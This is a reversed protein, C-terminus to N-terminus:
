VEPYIVALKDWDIGASARIREPLLSLYYYTYSIESHGLYASLYPMQSSVDRGEDVWRMITRTVHNHRLDYPRPLQGDSFLATDRCCIHFQSTMWHTPCKRGDSREFFFTRSGHLDDYRRCLALLDASMVIRRDKSKKSQRIFVVGSDLNVDTRLLALPEGPRMGCCYMMRFLVPVIYEKNPSQISPRISDISNFLVRVEGETFICPTFHTQPVSYEPGPVFAPKGISVQYRCLQRIRSVASNQTGNNMPQRDVLWADLLEKTIYGASTDCCECFAVFQSVQARYSVERYGLSVKLAVFDEFDELISHKDNM